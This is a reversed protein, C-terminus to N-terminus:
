PAQYDAYHQFWDKLFVPSIKPRYRILFTVLQLVKQWIAVSIRDKMM